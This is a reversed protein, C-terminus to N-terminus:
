GRTAGSFLTNESGFVQRIYQEACYSEHNILVTLQIFVRSM